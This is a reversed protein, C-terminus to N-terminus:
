LVSIDGIMQIVGFLILMMLIGMGLMSFGNILNFKNLRKTEKNREERSKFNMFVMNFQNLYNENIGESVMEYISIMVEEVKKNNFFSAFKIYPQLSKDNDIEELLLIIKSKIFPTSYNSTEKLSSYVNMNNSIYIKFYSFSTIFDNVLNANNKQILRKYRTLYYFNFILLIGLFYVLNVLNKTFYVCIALASVLLFNILILNSIEKKYSKNLIEIERKLKKM